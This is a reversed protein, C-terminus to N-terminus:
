RLTVRFSGGFTGGKYAGRVALVTRTGAALAPFRVEMTEPFNSRLFHHTVTSNPLNSRNGLKVSTLHVNTASKIGRNAVTITVVIEGTTADRTLTPKVRLSPHRSPLSAPRVVADGIIAGQDVTSLLPWGNSFDTYVWPMQQGLPFPASAEVAGFIAVYTSDDYFAKAAANSIRAYTQPSTNPLALSYVPLTGGLLGFDLVIAQTPLLAQFCGLAYGRQATAVLSPDTPWIWTASMLNEGFMKLMGYDAPLYHGSADQGGVISNYLTQNGAVAAAFGNALTAQLGSYVGQYTGDDGVFGAAAGAAVGIIGAIASATGENVDPLGLVAWAMNGLVSVINLAVSASPTATLSLYNGVVPLVTSQGLFTNTILEGISNGNGTGVFWDLTQQAWRLEWYIQWTVANWAASDVGTPVPLSPNPRNAPPTEYPVPPQNNYLLRYWSSLNDSSEANYLSRLNTISANLGLAGPLAAYAAAQDADASFDPSPLECFVWVKNTADWRYTLVSSSGRIFIVAQSHTGDGTYDRDGPLLVRASQFTAYYQVEDWSNADSLEQNVPAVAPPVPPLSYWTQSTTDFKGAVIGSPGRAIMEMAGDGDIDAFQLTSYWQTAGGLGATDNFYPSAPNYYALTKTAPDYKVTELGNIGNGLIEAAGDGDVDACQLTSYQAQVNWNGADSWNDFSALQTWTTNAPSALLKHIELGSAGSRAVVEWLGDNDVDALQITSWYFPATNWGNGDSFRTYSAFQNWSSHGPLAFPTHYFAELGFAGRAIVEYQPSPTPPLGPLTSVIPACQITQYYAPSAGWSGWSFPADSFDPINSFLSWSQAVPDYKYVHLGDAFRGLIEAQGDGDVDGTQIPCNYPDGPPSYATDAFDQLLTQDGPLPMWTANAPNWHVVELGGPGRIFMEERGDGDVDSFMYTRAASRRSAQMTWFYLPSDWHAVDAWMPLSLRTTQTAGLLRVGGARSQARAPTAAGFQTLAFLGAASYVSRALFDRRSIGQAPLIEIKSEDQDSM